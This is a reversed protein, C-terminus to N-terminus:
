HVRRLSPSRPRWLLNSAYWTACRRQSPKFSTLEQFVEDILLENEDRVIPGIEDGQHGINLEMRTEHDDKVVDAAVVLHRQERCSEVGDARHRRQDVFDRFNCSM